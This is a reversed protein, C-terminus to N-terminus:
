GLERSLALDSLKEGPHLRRALIREWLQLYVTEGLNSRTIRSASGSEM